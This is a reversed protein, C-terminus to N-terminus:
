WLSLVWKASPSDDRLAAVLRLWFAPILIGQDSLAQTAQKKNAATSSPGSSCARAGRSGSGIRSGSGASQISGAFGCLRSPSTEISAEGTAAGSSAFSATAEGCNSGTDCRGQNGGAPRDRSDRPSVTCTLPYRRGRSYECFRAGVDRTCDEVATRAEFDARRAPPFGTRMDLPCRARGASFFGPREALALFMGFSPRARLMNAACVGFCTERLERFCPAQCFFLHGCADEPPLGAREPGVGFASLVILAGRNLGTSSEASSPLSAM